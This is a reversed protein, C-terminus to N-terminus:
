TKSTENSRWCKEMKKLRHIFVFVLYSIGNKLRFYLCNLKWSPFLAFISGFVWRFQCHFKQLHVFILISSFSFLSSRILYFCSVGACISLLPIRFSCVISYRHFLQLLVCRADPGWTKWFCKFRKHTYGDTIHTYADMCAKSWLSHVSVDVKKRKKRYEMQPPVTSGDIFKELIIPSVSWFWM